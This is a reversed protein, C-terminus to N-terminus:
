RARALKKAHALAFLKQIHANTLFLEEGYPDYVAGIGNNYMYVSYGGSLSFFAGVPDWAINNDLKILDSLANFVGREVNTNYGSNSKAVNLEFSVVPGM